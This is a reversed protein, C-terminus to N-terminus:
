KSQKPKVSSEQGWKEPPLFAIDLNINISEEPRRTPDRTLQSAPMKTDKVFRYFSSREIDDGFDAVVRVQDGQLSGPLSLSPGDEKRRGSKVTLGRFWARHRETDGNNNVVGILEDLVPTWLVRSKGIEQITKSRQEYDTRENQLAQFYAVSEQKSALAEDLRANEVELEKLEGFYVYGFWGISGCVAMVTLLVAAFLKPSTRDSRRFEDPLLNIRIM